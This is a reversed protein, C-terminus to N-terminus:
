RRRKRALRGLGAIRRKGSAPLGIDRVRRIRVGSAGNGKFGVVTSNVVCLDYLTFLNFVILIIGLEIEPPLSSLESHLEKGVNGIGRRVAGVPGRVETM